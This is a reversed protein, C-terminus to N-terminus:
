DVPVVVPQGQLEELVLAVEAHVLPLHVHDRPTGAPQRGVAGQDPSRRAEPDLPRRDQQGLLQQEKLLGSQRGHLQHDSVPARLEEPLHVLALHVHRLDAQEREQCRHVARRRRRCPEDTAGEDLLEVVVEGRAVGCDSGHLLQAAATNSDQRMAGAVAVEQAGHQGGRSHVGRLHLLHREACEVAARVHQSVAGHIRREEHLGRQGVGFVLADGTNEPLGGGEVRAELPAPQQARVLDARLRRVHQQTRQLNVPVGAAQHM